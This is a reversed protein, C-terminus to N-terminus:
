RRPRGAGRACPGSRGRRRWPKFPTTVNTAHHIAEYEHRHASLRARLTRRSASVPTPTSCNVLVSDPTRSSSIAAATCTTDGSCNLHIPKHATHILCLCHHPLKCTLRPRRRRRLRGSALCLPVAVLRAGAVESREAGIVWDGRVSRRVSSSRVLYRPPPTGSADHRGGIGVHFHLHAMVRWLEACRRHQQEGGPMAGDDIALRVNGEVLPAGRRM